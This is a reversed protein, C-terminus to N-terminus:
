ESGVMKTNASVFLDERIWLSGISQRHFEMSIQFQILFSHRDFSYKKDM